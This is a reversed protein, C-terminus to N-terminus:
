KFLPATEEKELFLFLAEFSASKETPFSSRNKV